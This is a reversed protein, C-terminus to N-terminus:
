WKKSIYWYLVWAWPPEKTEQGKKCYMIVGEWLGTTKIPTCCSLTDEKRGMGM